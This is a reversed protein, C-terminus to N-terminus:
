LSVADQETEKAVKAVDETATAGGKDGGKKSEKEAGKDGGKDGGKKACLRSTHTRRAAAPRLQTPLRRCPLPCSCWQIFPM